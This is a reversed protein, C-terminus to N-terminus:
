VTNRIQDYDPNNNLNFTTTDQYNSPIIIPQPQYNYAPAQNSFSPNWPNNNPYQQPPYMVSPYQPVSQMPFQSATNLYPQSHMGKDFM